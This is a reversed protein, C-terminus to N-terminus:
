AARERAAKVFDHSEQIHVAQSELIERVPEPLYASMANDYAEKAVDEGEEATALLTDAGADRLRSRLGDVFHYEPRYFAPRARGTPGPEGPGSESQGSESPGSESPGSQAPASGAAAHSQRLAGVGEQNLVSELEGRFEARKLSETLFFRKLDMDELKEGIEVLAEQSEVLSQIVSYIAIGAGQMEHSSGAM